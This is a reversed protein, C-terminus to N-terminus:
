SAETIRTDNAATPSIIFISINKSFVATTGKYIPTGTSTTVSSDYGWYVTNTIPTVTLEKRNTLKTTSVKAEVASTGVSLAGYVGATNITDRTFLDQNPSSAVPTSEIGTIDSGILKTISASQLETLDAM